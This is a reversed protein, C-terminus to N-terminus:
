YTCTWFLQVGIKMQASVVEGDPRIESPKKKRIGQAWPKRVIITGVKCEAM